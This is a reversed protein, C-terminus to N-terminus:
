SKQLISSFKLTFRTGAAPDSSVKLSGQHLAVIRRALTLGLGFGPKARASDTRFFPQFINQIDAEAIIDGNNFVSIMAGENSFSASVISVNKDAYKCGNEIINKLAIYLLNGNGFVTLLKEDDPFEDLELQVTFSANHKEIDRIVKFLVEDMRVETLEINGQSGAKAIELLSRTLQQLELVDDHVSMLVERYETENRERQLAVELQSSISTLPTSLEHSANSIFRRQTSFSEQLRDLLHNFTLALKNLEDKKSTTEIRQSLNNSTILDVEKTITSMPRILSKAFVFGAAFSLLAALATSIWLIERLQFLYERGDSDEAAVVVIFSDANDPFYVAVAQKNKYNFYYEKELKAQGILVPTLFISDGPRDSYQYRLSNDREIITVSKNYLSAVGAADMKQLVQTSYDKIGAYVNATTGARNKLRRRFADHREKVSFFYVSVSVLALIITVLCAFLLAIRYKISM